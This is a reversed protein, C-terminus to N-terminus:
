SIIHWFKLSHNTLVEIKLYVIKRVTKRRLVILIILWLNNLITLMYSWRLWLNHRLWWRKIHTIVWSLFNPLASTIITPLSHGGVRLWNNFTILYVWVNIDVNLRRVEVVVKVLVKFDVVFFVIQVKKIRDVILEIIFISIRILNKDTVGIFFVFYWNEARFM